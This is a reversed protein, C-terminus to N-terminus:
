GTQNEPAAELALLALRLIGAVQDPDKQQAGRMLAGVLEAGETAGGDSETAGNLLRAAQVTLEILEVEKEAKRTADTADAGIRWFDTPVEFFLSLAEIVRFTADRKKGDRLDTLYQRNVADPLRRIEECAQAIEEMSAGAAELERTKLLIQRDRYLGSARRAIESIDHPKGDKLKLSHLKRFKAGLPM